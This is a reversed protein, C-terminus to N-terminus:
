GLDIDAVTVDGTTCHTGRNTTPSITRKPGSALTGPLGPQITGKLIVGLLYAADGIFDGGLHPGRGNVPGHDARRWRRGGRPHAREAGGHEASRSARTYCSFSQLM